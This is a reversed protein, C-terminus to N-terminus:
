PDIGVSAVSSATLGVPGDESQATILAVGTPHERFAQKLADAGTKRETTM